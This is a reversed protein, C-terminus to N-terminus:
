VISAKTKQSRYTLFFTYLQKTVCINYRDSSFLSFFIEFFFFQKFPLNRSCQWSIRHTILESVIWWNLFKLSEQFNRSKLLCKQSLMNTFLLIWLLYLSISQYQTQIKPNQNQWINIFGVLQSIVHITKQWALVILYFGALVIVICCSISYSIHMLNIKDPIFSVSQDYSAVWMVKLVHSCLSFVDRWKWAMYSFLYSIHMVTHCLSSNQWRAHRTKYCGTKNINHNLKIRPYIKNGKNKQYSLTRYHTKFLPFYFILWLYFQVM